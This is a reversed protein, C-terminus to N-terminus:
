VCAVGEVEVLLDVRCLPARLVQELGDAFAERGFQRVRSLDEARAVYARMSCWRGQVGASSRLAELNALTEGWQGALNGSHLTEEGVVSATGSAWLAGGVRVGRSFPPPKPGFKSSYNWAPCQRPNEVPRASHASWLAYIALYQGAHGVCTGAPMTSSVLGADQYARARGKNLHMYRDLGDDCAQTIRPLFTWVRAAPGPLRALVSAFADHARMELVAGSCGDVHVFESAIAGDRALEEAVWSPLDSQAEGTARWDQSIHEAISV